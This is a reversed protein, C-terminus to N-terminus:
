GARPQEEDNQLKNLEILNAFQNCANFVRFSSTETIQFETIYLTTFTMELSVILNVVTCVCCHVSLFAEVINVGKENM